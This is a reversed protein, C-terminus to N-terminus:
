IKKMSMGDWGHAKNPNLITVIKYVEDRPLFRMQTLTASSRFIMLFAVM